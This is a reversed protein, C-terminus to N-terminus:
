HLDGTDCQPHIEIESPEPMPPPQRVVWAIAEDTPLDSRESDDTAKVLLMVRLAMVGQGLRSAPRPM